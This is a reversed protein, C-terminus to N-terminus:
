EGEEESGKEGLRRKSKNTAVATSAGSHRPTTLASAESM